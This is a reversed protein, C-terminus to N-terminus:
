GRNRPEFHPHLLGGFVAVQLVQDLTHPDFTDLEDSYVWMECARVTEADVPHFPKEADAKDGSIMEATSYLISYTIIRDMLRECNLPDTIRIKYAWIDPAEGHPWEGHPQFQPGPSYESQWHPYLEQIGTGFFLAEAEQRIGM